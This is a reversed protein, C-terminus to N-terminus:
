NWGQDTPLQLLIAKITTHRVKGMKSVPILATLLRVAPLSM